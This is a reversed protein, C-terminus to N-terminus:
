NNAVLGRAALSRRELVGLQAQDTLTLDRLQYPAKLGSKALATASFQLRIPVNRGPQLWDAAQAYAAPKLAGSADHGYLVAGVAYRSAVAVEVGVDVRLGQGASVRHEALSGNFRATPLVVAFATTAERVVAKGDAEGRAFVHLEWLGREGAHAAPPTFNAAYSGNAGPTFAVDKSWGDPSEVVGAVTKFQAQAIAATGSAGAATTLAAAVHIAGGALLTGHSAGVQLAYPSAPEFVQVLYQGQATPASITATGPAVKADLRYVSSGRQIPMGAQAMQQATAITDSAATADLHVGGSSFRAADPQIAASGAGIPSIRVVDGAATLSLTVGRQLAAGTVDLLYQRSSAEYPHPDADIAKGAPLAWSIAAPAHDLAVHVHEMALLQTPVLDGAVPAALTRLSPSPAGTAYAPLAGAALGLACALCLIGIRM